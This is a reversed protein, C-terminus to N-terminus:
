QLDMKEKVYSRLRGIGKWCLIALGFLIAAIIVALLMQMFGTITAAGIYFPADTFGLLNSISVGLLSIVSVLLMLASIGLIPVVAVNAFGIFLKKVIHNNKM